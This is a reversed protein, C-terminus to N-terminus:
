SRAGGGHVLKECPPLSEDGDVVSDVGALSDFQGPPQTDLRDDDIM